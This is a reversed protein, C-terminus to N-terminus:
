KNQANEREENNIRIIIEILDNTITKYSLIHTDSFNFRVVEKSFVKLAAKTNKCIELFQYFVDKSLHMNVTKTSCDFEVVEYHTNNCNISMPFNVVNTGNDNEMEDLMSETIQDKLNKSVFFSM